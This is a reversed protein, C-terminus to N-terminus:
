YGAGPFDSRYTSSHGSRSPRMSHGSRSSAGSLSSTHGSRSSTGSRESPAYRSSGMGRSTHNGGSQMARLEAQTRAVWVDCDYHDEDNTSRNPCVRRHNAMRQRDQEAYFTELGVIAADPLTPYRFKRDGNEDRIIDVLIGGKTHYAVAEEDEASLDGAPAASRHSRNSGQSMMSSSHGADYRHSRSSRQSMM